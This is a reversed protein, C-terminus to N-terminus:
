RCRRAAWEALWADLAAWSAFRRGALANRKVGWSAAVARRKKDIGLDRAIAKVHERALRAVERVVGERLM